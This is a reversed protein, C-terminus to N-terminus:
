PKEKAPKGPETEDIIAQQSANGGLKTLGKRATVDPPEAFRGQDNSEAIWKQLVSRLRELAAMHDPQPSEALNNMAWPDADLDYLEEPPMSPALYFNKQWETLKGEAGLEKILNWVPYSREKYDNKQLFPREPMFNRIYRYRADRVTRFRFMTEDCRDRAGFVAERPPEAHDGLFIRGQMKPPKAHGAVDLFTPTFDIAELLQDSVGGVTFQKPAPFHKAWRIILPIRLGDDYCFQKGRVHCQGHDAMFLVITDDALGDAELQQLVLGIKRDLESAADLYAAWDARTVPHDPYIPPVDVKDPDARKPAHFKRHTEQFNIQAYFPQRPKLDVWSESDFPKGFYTFNWDTKATGDFGCSAPLKRVNATFYGAERMWDSIVKVGDPLRYGDDRHSRHHHAGITTQYMGTIFASRSASCVPATTFARTYRMGQSALRDLNPSWVQKAGYCGLDPSFDEAILWLINPRNPKNGAAHSTLLFLSVFSVATALWRIPNPLRM